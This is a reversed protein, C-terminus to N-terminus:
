RQQQMPVREMVSRTTRKNQLVTLLLTTCVFAIAFGMTSKRVFDSGSPASFLNESMGGGGFVGLGGGKGSQILITVILFITTIIHLTL